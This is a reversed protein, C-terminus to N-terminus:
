VKGNSTATCNIQSCNFQMIASGWICHRKTTIWHYALVVFARSGNSYRYAHNRLYDSRKWCHVLQWYVTKQLKTQGLTVCLIIWFMELIYHSSTYLLLTIASTQIYNHYPWIMPGLLRQDAGTIQGYWVYNMFSHPLARFYVGNDYFLTQNFATSFLINLLM